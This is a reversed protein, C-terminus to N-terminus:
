RLNTVDTQFLHVIHSMLINENIQHALVLFMIRDFLQYRNYYDNVWVSGGESSGFETWFVRSKRVLYQQDATDAQLLHVMRGMLIQEEVFDEDAELDSPQDSQEEILPSFLRLLEDTQFYRM